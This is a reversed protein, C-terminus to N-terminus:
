KINNTKESKTEDILKIMKDDNAFLIKCTRGNGDYFTHIEHIIISYFKIPTIQRKNLQHIIQYLKDETLNKGM